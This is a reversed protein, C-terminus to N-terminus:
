MMELVFSFFLAGAFEPTFRSRQARRLRTSEHMSMTSANWISLMNTM